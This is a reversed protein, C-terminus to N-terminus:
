LALTDGIAVLVRSAFHPDQDKITVIEREGDCLCFCDRDKYLHFRHADVTMQATAGKDTWIVELRLPLMIRYGLSEVLLKMMQEIETRRREEAQEESTFPIGSARRLERRAEKILDPLEVTMHKEKTIVETDIHRAKHRVPEIPRQLGWCIWCHAIGVGQTFVGVTIPTPDIHTVVAGVRATLAHTAVTVATFLPANLGLIGNLIPNTDPVHVGLSLMLASAESKTIPM